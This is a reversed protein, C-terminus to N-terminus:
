RTATWLIAGLGVAEFAGITFLYPNMAPPVLPMMTTYSYVVVANQALFAIAFAFLALTFKAKTRAFIGGYVVLLGLALAINAFGVGISLMMFMEAM